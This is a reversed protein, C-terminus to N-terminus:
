AGSADDGEDVVEADTAEDGFWQRAKSKAQDRHEAKIHTAVMSMAMVLVGLDDSYGVLPALDPIADTPLIFYGLAGLIIARTRAPTDPDRFCYYLTLAAVVVERGAARAFGKLKAWFGDDSFAEEYANEDTKQLDSM